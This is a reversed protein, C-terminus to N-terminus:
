RGSVLELALRAAAGIPDLGPPPAALGQAAGDGPAAAAPSIRVEVSKVAAAGKLHPELRRLIMAGFSQRDQATWEREEGDSRLSAPCYPARVVIEDRVFEFSIPMDEAIRGELAADRAEAFAGLTDALFYVADKGAAPAPPAKRFKIRIDASAGDRRALPAYAPAVEVGARAATELSAAMARRAEVIEGGELAFVRSKGTPPAVEALRGEPMAVGAARAAEALAEALGASRGRARVRWAAGEAIAALGLSSGPEDGGLGFPALSLSALHTKLRDSSFYDNLMGLTSGALRRAAAAGEPKALAALLPQRADGGAAASAFAIEASERWRARLEAAFDAWLHHDGPAAVALADATRRADPYTTVTAGDAFLSVCASVPEADLGAEELNLRRWVFDPVGPTSGARKGREGARILAVSAGGRAACAAAALGAPEAGIVALDYIARRSM